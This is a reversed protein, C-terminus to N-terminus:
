VFYLEVKHKHKRCFRSAKNEKDFSGEDYGQMIRRQIFPSRGCDNVAAASQSSMVVKVSFEKLFERTRQAKIEKNKGSLDDVIVKM